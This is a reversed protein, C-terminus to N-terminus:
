NKHKKLFVPVLTSYSTLFAAVIVADNRVEPNETETMCRMIFHLYEDFSLALKAATENCSFVLTLKMVIREVFPEPYGCWKTAIETIISYFAIVYLFYTKLMEASLKEPSSKLISYVFSLCSTLLHRQEINLEEKQTHLDKMIGLVLEIVNDDVEGCSMYMNALSGISLAVEAPGTKAQTQLHLVNYFYKLLKLSTSQPM